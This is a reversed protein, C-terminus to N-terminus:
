QQPQKKRNLFKELRAVVDPHTQTIGCLLSETYMGDDHSMSDIHRLGTTMAWNSYPSNTAIHAALEKAKELSQGNEVVYHSLGLRYGEESDVDRGTLMMETMRGAGIVRAVNRSAGGGVFIGHRGEPLRYYTGKESVRVHACTALELGGGIVAGQMAAIVPLGSNQIHGFTRHWMNSHKVVDLGQRAKHEALDLGSCFEPGAGSFIVVRVDEPMTIFVQEIELCLEDNIANKKEPRNLHLHGIGDEVTFQIYTYDSM